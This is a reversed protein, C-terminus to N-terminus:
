PCSVLKSAKHATHPFLPKLIKDTLLSPTLLLFLSQCRSLSQLRPLCSTRVSWKQLTPKPKLNRQHPTGMIGLMVWLLCSKLFCTLAKGKKQKAERAGHDVSLQKKLHVLSWWLACTIGTLHKRAELSWIPACPHVTYKASNDAKERGMIIDAIALPIQIHRTHLERIVKVSVKPETTM